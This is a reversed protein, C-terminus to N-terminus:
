AAMAAKARVVARQREVKSAIAPRDLCDLAYAALSIAIERGEKTELAKQTLDDESIREIEYEVLGEGCTFDKDYVCALVDVVIDEAIDKRAQRALAEREERSIEEEESPGEEAARAPTAVQVDNALIAM